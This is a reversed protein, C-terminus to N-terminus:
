KWAIQTDFDVLHLSHSRRQRSLKEPGVTVQHALKKQNLDNRPRESLSTSLELFAIREFAKILQFERRRSNERLDLTIEQLRDKSDFARVITQGTKRFHDRFSQCDSCNGDISRAFQEARFAKLNSPRASTAAARDAAGISSSRIAVSSLWIRM